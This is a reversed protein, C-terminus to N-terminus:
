LSLDWLCLPALFDWLLTKVQLAHMASHKLLTKCFAQGRHPGLTKNPGATIHSSNCFLHKPQTRSGLLDTMDVEWIFRMIAASTWGVCRRAMNADSSSTGSITWILWKFHSFCVNMGCWYIHRTRFVLLYVLIEIPWQWYFVHDRRGLMRKLHGWALPPLVIFLAAAMKTGDSGTDDTHWKPTSPYIQFEAWKAM